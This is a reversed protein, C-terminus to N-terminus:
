QPQQLRRQIYGLVRVFHVHQRIAGLCLADVRLQLVDTGNQGSQENGGVITLALLKQHVAVEPVVLPEELHAGETDGERM